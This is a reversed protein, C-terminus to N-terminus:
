NGKSNYKQWNSDIFINDKIHIWDDDSLTFEYESRSHYPMFINGKTAIIGNSKYSEDIKNGTFPNVPNEIIDKLALSPVDANTMFKDDVQVIGNSHSNFDKVLLVPNLRDKSYGAFDPSENYMSKDGGIGHDSVVIIRTNDYIKNKRLFDAFRGVQILSVTDIKYADNNVTYEYEPSIDYMSIDENSHTCENTFISLTPSASDTSVIQPLYYLISYWNAFDNSSEKVGNEWWTGKYYVVPRLVAPVERFLSTWFLNRNLVHALSAKEYGPKIKEKKFDGAYRGLLSFTNLRGNLEPNKELTSKRFGEMDAVYSYNAWSLDSVNSVFGQKVLIKPLLALAQNHKEKLTITNRKNMEFPTYDFGGYVGPSGMLTHGNFSICNPYFVFGDLKQSLDKQDSLIKNVYASEFRDLM